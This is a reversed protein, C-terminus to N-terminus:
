VWGDVCSAALSVCSADVIVCVWVQLDHEVYVTKLEDASPFGDLQGKAVSRM